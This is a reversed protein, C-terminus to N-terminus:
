TGPLIDAVYPDITIEGRHVAALMEVALHPGALREKLLYGVGGGAPLRLVRRVYAADTRTSLLLIGVAPHAARIAEATVMGQDDPTPLDIVVVDPGTDAVVRLATEHDAASGLVELGVQALLQRLAALLEPTSEVM